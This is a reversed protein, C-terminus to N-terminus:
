EKYSPLERIWHRGEVHKYNFRMTIGRENLARWLKNLDSDEELYANTEDMYSYRSINLNYLKLESLPVEVWGHAPDQHYIYTRETVRTARPYPRSEECQCHAIHELCATCTTTEKTDTVAPSDRMIYNEENNM